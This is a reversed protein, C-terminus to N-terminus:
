VLSHWIGSLSPTTWILKVGAEDGTISEDDDDDDDDDDTKITRHLGDTMNYEM